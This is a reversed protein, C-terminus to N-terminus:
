KFNVVCEIVRLISGALLFQFFKNQLLAALSGTALIGINYFFVRYTKSNYNLSIDSSSIFYGLLM